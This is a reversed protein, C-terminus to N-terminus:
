VSGTSIPYNAVKYGVVLFQLCKGGPQCDYSFGSGRCLIPM